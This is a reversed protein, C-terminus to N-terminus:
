LLSKIAEAKAILQAAKDHPIKKGEQVRVARIFIDLYTKAAQDKGSELMFETSDLDWLLPREVSDSLHLNKVDASLSKTQDIAAQNVPLNIARIIADASNQMTSAQDRTLSWPRFVSVTLKFFKMGMVADGPRNDNLSRKVDMLEGIMIRQYIHPVNRQNNIYTILQDILDIANGPQTVTIYAPKTLNGTGDANNANLSVAYTGSVSYRHVPNQETSVYGDGFSWEWATPANTSADTFRVALPAKGTTTNASFAVVPPTPPFVTIYDTRNEFVDADGNALELSVTYNGTTTYTHVPDIEISTTGDGFNWNRLTPIGGSSTDNFQVTLPAKGSLPTATFNPIPPTLPNVTIFDTVTMTDSGDDNTATLSVTYNGVVTYTHIPNQEASSTSDGFDWSWTTPTNNSLDNFQVTLPVKGSTKNVTFNAVPPTPALVTIIEYKTRTDSGTTSNTVTLNVTYTGATSYTYEANQTTATAGDGLEWFWQDPGRLSEDTFQVSLPAKGSTPSINFNAFPPAEDGLESAISQMTAANNWGCFRISSIITTSYSMYYKNPVVQLIEAIADINADTMGYKKYLHTQNEPLGNQSLNYKIGDIESDTIPYKNTVQQIEAMFDSAEVDLHIYDNVVMSQYTYRKKLLEKSWYTDNAAVAGNYKIIADTLGSNHGYLQELQLVYRKGANDPLSDLESYHITDMQIPATYDPVPDLAQDISQVMLKEHIMSALELEARIIFVEKLANEGVIGAQVLIEELFINVFNETLFIVENFLANYYAAIKFDEASVTVAFGPYLNLPGDYIGTGVDPGSIEFFGDVNESTFKYLYVVQPTCGVAHMYATYIDGKLESLDYAKLLTGLIFGFNKGPSGPQFTSFMLDMLPEVTGYVDRFWSLM